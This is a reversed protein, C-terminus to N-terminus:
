EYPILQGNRMVASELLCSMLLPLYLRQEDPISSTDMLAYIYVFQTKADDLQFRVPMKELAGPFRECESADSRNCYRRIPHYTISNIDPIPVSTILEVPPMRDNHELADALEEAKRELGEAGLKEKQEEIRELEQATYAEMESKSPM